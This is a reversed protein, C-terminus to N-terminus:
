SGGTDGLCEYILDVLGNYIAGRSPLCSRFWWFSSCRSHFCTSPRSRWL